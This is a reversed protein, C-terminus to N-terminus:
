NHPKETKEKEEDKVEKNDRPQTNKTDSPTEESNNKPPLIKAARPPPSRSISIPVVDFSYANSTLFSTAMIIYALFFSPLRM